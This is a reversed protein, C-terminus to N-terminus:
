EPTQVKMDSIAHTANSYIRKPERALEIVPLRARIEQLLNTVLLRAAPDGASDSHPLVPRRIIAPGPGTVLLSIQFTSRIRMVTAPPPWTVVPESILTRIGTM